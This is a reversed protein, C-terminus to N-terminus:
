ARHLELHHAKCLTIGNALSDAGGRHLPTIHHAEVGVTTGCRRCRWGDRDKVAKAWGTRSYASRRQPRARERRREHERCRSGTQIFKGCDLCRRM